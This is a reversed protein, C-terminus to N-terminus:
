AYGCSVCIEFTAHGFAHLKPSIESSQSNYSYTPSRPSLIHPYTFAYNLSYIPYTSLYMSLSALLQISPYM